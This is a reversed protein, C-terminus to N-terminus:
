TRCRISVIREKRAGERENACPVSCGYDTDRIRQSQLEQLSLQQQSGGWPCAMDGPTRVSTPSTPHQVPLWSTPKSRWSPRDRAPFIGQNMELLRPLDQNCSASSRSDHPANSSSYTLAPIQPPRGLDSTTMGCPLPTKISMHRLAIGGWPCVSQYPCVSENNPGSEGRTSVFPKM